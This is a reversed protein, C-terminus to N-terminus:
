PKADSKPTAPGAPTTDDTRARTQAKRKRLNERLAAAERDIRALRAAEAYPSFHPAPKDTM